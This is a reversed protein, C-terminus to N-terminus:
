GKRIDNRETLDSVKIMIGSIVPPMVLHHCIKIEPADMAATKNKKFFGEKTQM